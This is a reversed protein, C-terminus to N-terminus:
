AVMKVFNNLLPRNSLKGNAMKGFARKLQAKSAGVEIDLSEDGIMGNLGPLLYVQDFGNVNNFIGVNEKNIKKLIEKAKKMRVFYDESKDKILGSVAHKCVRGSRGTGAVFFNVVNMEPVRKRLLELLMATTDKNYDKAFITTNTMNDKLVLDAHYHVYQYGNYTKGKKYNCENVYHVRDLRCGSGDTLFVTNIKQVGTEKKYKPVFDLAFAAAQGLPTGGLSLIDPANYSSFYNERIWTGAYMNLNHMMKYLDKNNMKSSFFQLLNCGEVILDGSKFSTM